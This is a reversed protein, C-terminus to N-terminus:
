SLAQSSTPFSLGFSRMVPSPTNLVEHSRSASHRSSSTIPSLALVIFATDRRVDPCAVRSYRPRTGLGASVLGVGVGVCSRGSLAVECAM